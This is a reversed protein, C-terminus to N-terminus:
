ISIDNDIFEFYTKEDNKRWLDFMLLLDTRRILHDLQLVVKIKSL